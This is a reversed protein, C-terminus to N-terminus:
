GRKNWPHNPDIPRGSTDCGAVTGSKELQQKYSDHCCKCLSQWNTKDWFLARAKAIADDDGSAIAAALRHPKIHDVVAVPVPKGLRLCNVCLPNSQKYAASAKQWKSDYGRSSASERRDTM